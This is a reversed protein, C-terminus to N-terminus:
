IAGIINSAVPWLGINQGYRLVLSELPCRLSMVPISSNQVSSRIVNGVLNMDLITNVSKPTGKSLFFIV